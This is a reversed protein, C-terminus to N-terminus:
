TLVRGECAQQRIKMEEKILSLVRIPPQSIGQFIRRNRENWVNWVTYLLIAAVKSRNEISSAQLSSNWWEEVQVRKESGLETAQTVPASLSLEMRLSPLVRCLNTPQSRSLQQRQSRGDPPRSSTVRKSYQAKRRRTTRHRHPESAGRRRTTPTPGLSRGLQGSPKVVPPRGALTRRANRRAPSPSKTRTRGRRRRM